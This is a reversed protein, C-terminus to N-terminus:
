SSLFINLPFEFKCLLIITIIRFRHCQLKNNKFLSCQMMMRINEVINKHAVHQVELYFIGTVTDLGVTFHRLQQFKIPRLNSVKMTLFMNKRHHEHLKNKFKAHLINM